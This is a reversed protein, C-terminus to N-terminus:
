ACINKCMCADRDTYMNNYSKCEYGFLLFLVCASQTDGPRPSMSKTHKFVWKYLTFWRKQWSQRGLVAKSQQKYLWRFACLTHIYAHIYVYTHIYIFMYICVCMCTPRGHEPVEFSQNRYPCVDAYEINVDHMCAHVYLDCLGIYVCIEFAFALFGWVYVCVYMCVYGQYEPQTGQPIAPLSKPSTVEATSLSAGRSDGMPPADKCRIYTHIYDHMHTIVRPVDTCAFTHIYPHITNYQVHIPTNLTHIHACICIYRELRACCMRLAYFSWRM